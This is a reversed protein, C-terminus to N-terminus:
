QMAELTNNLDKMGAPPPAFSRDIAEDAKKRRAERQAERKRNAMMANYTSREKWQCEMPHEECWKANAKQWSDLIGACGPTLIALALFILLAKM